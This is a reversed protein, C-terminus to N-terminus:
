VRANKRRHGLKAYITKFLLTESKYTNTHKKLSERQMQCMKLFNPSDKVNIILATPVTKPKGKFEVSGSKVYTYNSIFELDLCVVM